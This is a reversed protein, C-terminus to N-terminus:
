TPSWERTTSCETIRFRKVEDSGHFCSKGKGWCHQTAIVNATLIKIQIQYEKNQTKESPNCKNWDTKVGCINANPEGFTERLIYTTTKHMDMIWGTCVKKYWKSGFYKSYTQFLINVRYLAAKVALIDVNHFCWWRALCRFCANQRVCVCVSHLRPTSPTQINDFRDFMRHCNTSVLM